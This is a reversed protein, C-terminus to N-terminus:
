AGPTRAGGAVLERLISQITAMSPISGERASPLLDPIEELRNFAEEVASDLFDHERGRIAVVLTMTARRRVLFTVDGVPVALA